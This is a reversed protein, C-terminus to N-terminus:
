HGNRTDFTLHADRESGDDWGITVAASVTVGIDDVDGLETVVRGTAFNLGGLAVQIPLLQGYPFVNAVEILDVPLPGNTSQDDLAPVGLKVQILMNVRGGPICSIAGPISNFEVANRVARVTAKTATQDGHQDVGFGLEVFLLQTLRAETPAKHAGLGIDKWEQSWSKDTAKTSSLRRTSVRVRSCVTARPISLWRALLM